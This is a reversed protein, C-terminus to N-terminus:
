EDEKEEIEEFWRMCSNFWLPIQISDIGDDKLCRILAEAQHRTEVNLRRGILKRGYKYENDEQYQRIYKDKKPSFLRGLFSLNKYKAKAKKVLKKWYFDDFGKVDKTLYKYYKQIRDRYKSFNERDITVYGAFSEISM